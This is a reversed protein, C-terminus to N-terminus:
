ADSRSQSGIPRRGRGCVVRRHEPRLFRASTTGNYITSQTRTRGPMNIEEQTSTRVRSLAPTPEALVRVSVTDGDDVLTPYGIVERDAVSSLVHDPLDGFTWDTLGRQEVSANARSIAVRTHARFRVRLEALDKGHGLAVGDNDLVAFTIRLHAPVTAMDVDPSPSSIPNATVSRRGGAM